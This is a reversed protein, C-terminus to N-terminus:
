RHVFDGTSLRKLAEEALLTFLQRKGEDHSRFIYGSAHTDGHSLDASALDSSPHRFKVLSKDFEEIAATDHAMLLVYIFQSDSRIKHLQKVGAPLGKKMYELLLKFLTELAIPELTTQMIVPSLSYFFNELLVPNYKVREQQLIEKVVVLLEGQKSIMGGNFDRFDGLLRTLENVVTQRAQYLDISHDMRLFDEKRTKIRFVTAEKSHKNRINGVIKTRDHKYNLFSGQGKFCEQISLLGPKAVRVFIVTFVLFGRQQQDFTIFVQPIDRAYKIQQSLTLINRMIEEENRPMFIPHMLHEVYVRLDKPLETKLMQLEEHSFKVGQPHEIELYVTTLLEKGRRILLFSHPCANVLPFHHHLAAIFQREEFVEKEALFNIGATIGIREKDQYPLRNLKILVKRKLPHQESHRLLEKRFLYQTMIIRSLHRISREAKFKEKCTLLIHQMESIIDHDVIKSHRRVRRALIEQLLVTKEDQSFGKAELIKQAMQKSELGLKIQSEILPLSNEIQKLTELDKVHVVIESLSYIDTSVQPLQFQASFVLTVDTQENPILWRSIMEFFFKFANERFLSFTYFSFTKPLTETETKLWIPFLENLNKNANIGPLLLRLAERIVEVYLKSHASNQPEDLFPVIELASIKKKRENQTLM